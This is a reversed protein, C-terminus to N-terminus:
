DAAQKTLEEESLPNEESDTQEEERKEFFPMPNKRVGNERREFHLHPGTSYGTSGIEGIKQGKVVMDGVRVVIFSLHAYLTTINGGHDVIIYKGYSGYGKSDSFNVFIVKGSNAAVVNKGYMKPGTIDIGGHFEKRGCFVRNGYPSSILYFGPTPWCLDGGVYKDSMSKLRSLIRSIEAQYEEEQKMCEEYRELLLKEHMKSDYVQKEAVNYEVDLQKKKGEIEKKTAFLESKKIELVAKEREIKAEEEKIKKILLQNQYMIRRAFEARTLIKFYNERGFLLGLVEANQAGASLYIEKFRKTLVIRESSIEKQVRTLSQQTRDIDKELLVRKKELLSVQNQLAGIESAIRQQEKEENELKRKQAYWSKKREAVEEKATDLDKKVKEMEKELRSKEKEEGSEEDKEKSDDSESSSSKTVEEVDDDSDLLVWDEDYDEGEAYKKSDVYYDDGVSSDQLACYGPFM